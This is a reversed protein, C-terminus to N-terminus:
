RKDVKRMMIAGLGLLSLVLLLFGPPTLAPADVPAECKSESVAFYITKKDSGFHYKGDEKYVKAHKVAPYEAGGKGDGKDPDGQGRDDRYKVWLDGDKTYVGVVTVIHANGPYRYAVEVDETKIEKKLWEAFDGKEEKVGPIADVENGSDWIKTIIKNGTQEKAYKDKAKIDDELTTTTSSVKKKILDDYIKQADKKMGLKHERNLWDISRAFSGALCKGIGEQVARVDRDKNEKVPAADLKVGVPEGPDFIDSYPIRNPVDTALCELTEVAAFTLAAGPDTTHITSDVTVNYYIESLDTGASLGLEALNFYTGESRTSFDDNDVAFLPLNQITWSAPGGSTLSVNVNLYYTTTPDPDYSWSMQGYLSDDQALSGNPRFWDLQSFTINTISPQASVTPALGVIFIATVVISIATIKKMM